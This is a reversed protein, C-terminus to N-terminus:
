GWLPAGIAQSIFEERRRRRRKRGERRGGKRRQEKTKRTDPNRDLDV